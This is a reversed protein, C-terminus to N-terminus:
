ARDHRLGETLRQDYLKWPDLLFFRHRLHQGYSVQNFMAQRAMWDHRHFVQEALLRRDRYTRENCAQHWIGAFMGVLGLGFLIGAM